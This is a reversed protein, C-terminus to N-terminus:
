LMFTCHRNGSIGTVVELKYRGITCILDICCIEAPKVLDYLFPVGKVYPRASEKILKPKELCLFNFIKYRLDKEPGLFYSNRKLRTRLLDQYVKRM